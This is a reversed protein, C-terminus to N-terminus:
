TTPLYEYLTVWRPSLSGMDTAPASLHQRIKRGLQAVKSKPPPCPPPPLFLTIGLENATIEDVQIRYRAMLRALRKVQPYLTNGAALLRINETQECHQLLRQVVRQNPVSFRISLDSYPVYGPYSPYKSEM